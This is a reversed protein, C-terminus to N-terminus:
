RSLRQEDDVLILRSPPDAGWEWLVLNLDRATAGHAFSPVILAQYGDSALEGAFLQTSAAGQAKMMDRWAPDGLASSIMGRAELASPDRCDFVREIDAEYSILTTPQLTGVQNGERLATMVSLSTYLAPTGKRNFRGGHLEAGRGSLPERAYIPNLARYLTGRFRM